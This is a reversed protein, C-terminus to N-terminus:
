GFVNSNMDHVQFGRGSSLCCTPGGFGGAKTIIVPGAHLGRGCGRPPGRFERFPSGPMVEGFARSRFALERIVAFATDGGFIVV